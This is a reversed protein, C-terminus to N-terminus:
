SHTPTGIKEETRNRIFCSCDWLCHFIGYVPAFYGALMKMPFKPKSSEVLMYFIGMVVSVFMNLLLGNKRDKKQTRQRGIPMPKRDDLTLKVNLIARLQETDVGMSRYIGSPLM